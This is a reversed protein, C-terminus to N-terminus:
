DVDPVRDVAQDGSGDIRPRAEDDDARTRRAGRHV